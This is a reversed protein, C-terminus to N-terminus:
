QDTGEHPQAPRDTARGAKDEQGAVNGVQQRDNQACQGGGSSNRPGNRLAAERRSLLRRSVNGTHMGRLERLDERLGDNPLHGPHGLLVFRDVEGLAEGVKRGGIEELLLGHPRDAGVDVLVRDSPAGLPQTVGHSKLVVVPVPHIHVRFGVNGHRASGRLRHHRHEQGDHIRAVFHDDELGEVLIVITVRKQASGHRDVHGHPAPFLQVEIANGPGERVARARDHDVRRVVWCAPDDGTPIQFADGLQAAPVVRVGDGILDVLM